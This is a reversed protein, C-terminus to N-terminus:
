LPWTVGKANRVIYRSSGPKVPRVDVLPKMDPNALSECAEDMTIEYDRFRKNKWEDVPNVLGSSPDMGLSKVVVSIPSPRSKYTAGLGLNSNGM